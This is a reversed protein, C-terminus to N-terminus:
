EARVVYHLLLHLCIFTHGFINIFWSAMGRITNTLYRRSTNGLVCDTGKGKGQKKSEGRKIIGTHTGMEQTQTGWEQAFFLPGGM